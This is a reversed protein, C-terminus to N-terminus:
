VRAETREHVNQCNTLVGSKWTQPISASDEGAPVCKCCTTESCQTAALPARLSKRCQTLVNRHLLGLVLVGPRRPKRGQQSATNATGGSLHCGFSGYLCSGLSSCLVAPLYNPLGLIWFALWIVLSQILLRIHKAATMRAFSRGAKFAGARAGTRSSPLGSFLRGRETLLSPTVNASRFRSRTSIRWIRDM